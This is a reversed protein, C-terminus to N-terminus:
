HLVTPFLKVLNAVKTAIRKFANDNKWQKAAHQQLTPRDGTQM